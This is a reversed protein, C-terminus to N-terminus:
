RLQFAKGLLAFASSSNVEMEAGSEQLSSPSDELLECVYVM